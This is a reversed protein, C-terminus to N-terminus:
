FESSSRAINEVLKKMLRYHDNAKSYVDQAVEEIYTHATLNRDDVMQLAQVVEEETLLGTVLAERFCSKPAQCTIGEVELLYAKLCKWVAEFTYEFRQITADRVILSFPEQLIEGLTGM